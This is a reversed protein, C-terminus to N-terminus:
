KAKDILGGLGTLRLIENTLHMFEMPYYKALKISVTLDIEPEVSGMQLMEMRKALEVPVSDATGLLEKLAKIKEGKQDSAIAEVVDSLNKNRTATDQAKAVEEASLNRVKWIPEDDFWDSLNPLEVESIRDIFKAKLFQSKKFAM